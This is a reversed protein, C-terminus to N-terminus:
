GKREGATARGSRRDVHGDAPAPAAKGASSAAKARAGADTRAQLGAAADGEGLEVTYKWERTAVQAYHGHYSEPILVAIRAMIETTIEELAERSAPGPLPAIRFPKGISVRIRGKPYLVRMYTGFTETGAIGVPLITAGSRIALSAIGPRAKRMRSPSRTGEPFMTVVGNPLGLQGLVWQYAGFDAQDRKVPHAGYARLFLAAPPLWFLGDKALFRSNRPLSVGMIPPDMNSQHNAVVLLPGSRPVNHRGEVRYDCFLALTGRFAANCATYWWFKFRM